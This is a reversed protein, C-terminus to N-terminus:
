REASRTGARARAAESIIYHKASRSGSDASVGIFNCVNPHKLSAMVQATRTVRAHVSDLM